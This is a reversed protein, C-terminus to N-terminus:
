LVCLVRALYAGPSSMSSLIEKPILKSKPLFELIHTESPLQHKRIHLNINHEFMASAAEPFFPPFGHFVRPSIVGCPEFVDIGSQIKLEHATELTTQSCLNSLSNVCRHLNEIKASFYIVEPNKISMGLNNHSTFITDRTHSPM